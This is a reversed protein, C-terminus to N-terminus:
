NLKSLFFEEYKSIIKNISFKDVINKRIFKKDFKFDLAKLLTESFEINSGDVVFGNKGNLIIENIGGKVNFSVCPKKLYGAELLVNPFGEFFSSLVYVKSALIYKYPNKKLGLLFVNQSLGLADIKNQLVDRSNGEGLIALTLNKDKIFSFSDILRSLGKQPSLTSACTIFDYKKTVSNSNLIINDIYATDIPNNIKVLKKQPLFYNNKLDSVMDESQCVINDFNCILNRYLFDQLLPFRYTKNKFSVLNSERAIFKIKTSFFAKFFILYISLHSQFSMIIHPSIEKVKKYIKFISFRVKKVDLVHINLNTVDLSNIIEEGDLLVLHVEFIDRNLFNYLYSVFRQTGGTKLSPIILCIKKINM